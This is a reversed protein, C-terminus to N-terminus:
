LASGSTAIWTFGSDTLAAVCTTINFTNALNRTWTTMNIPNSASLLCVVSGSTAVLFTKGLISTSIVPLTGTTGVTAGAVLTVPTTLATASGSRAVGVRNLPAVTSPAGSMDIENATGAINETVWGTSGVKNRIAM